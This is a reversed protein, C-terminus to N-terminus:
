DQRVLPSLAKRLKEVAEAITPNLAQERIDRSVLPWPENPYGMPAEDEEREKQEEEEAEEENEGLGSTATVLEPFGNLVNDVAYKKYAEKDMDIAVIYRAIALWDEETEPHSDKKRARHGPLVNRWVHLVDVFSEEKFIKRAALSDGYYIGVAGAALANPLKETVYGNEESNEMAMVWRYGRYIEWPEANGPPWISEKSYDMNHQCNGLSDVGEIGAEAAAKTLADFMMARFGQCHGSVWGVMRPRDWPKVRSWSTTERTALRKNYFWTWEMAYPSWVFTTETSNFASGDGGGAWAASTDLRILPPTSHQCHQWNNYVVAPEEIVQIWPQDSWWCAFQDLYISPGEVVLDIPVKEEHTGLEVVDMNIVDDNEPVRNMGFSRRLDPDSFRVDVGPLALELLKTLALWGFDGAAQFGVHIYPRDSHSSTEQGLDAASSKTAASPKEPEPDLVGATSSSAGAAASVSSSSSSSSPPVPEPDPLGNGSVGSVTLSLREGGPTFLNLREGFVGLAIGIILAMSMLACVLWGRAESTPSPAHSHVQQGRRAARPTPNSSMGGEMRELVPVEDESSAVLLAAREDPTSIM